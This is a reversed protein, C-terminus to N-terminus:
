LVIVEEKYLYRILVLFCSLRMLWGVGILEFLPFKLSLVIFAIPIYFVSFIMFDETLKDKLLGLEEVQKLM